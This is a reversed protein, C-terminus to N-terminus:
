GNAFDIGKDINGKLEDLMAEKLGEERASLEGYSLIEEAGNPGLRVPQAFYAAPGDEVAVYCCETRSGGALGEALALTFRAGADAMSLTASGGGAKAEVVETGANQIKPILMDLEADSFEVDLQSLLPLITNGSHGGIVTVNVERPDRGKLEGVFTNSRIVDLMTVGFVKRPDYVGAKKLTEAAIPVTSNVPNTIIAYCANPAAKAGTEVLTRVIGANVNFLDDRTMGPKRPVGAPIVIIDADAVAAELDDAGHGTVKVPTPIHSLDVAVGPVVPNVDYLALESGAPLQNKLLLALPQGIGGAAGLVSVKM